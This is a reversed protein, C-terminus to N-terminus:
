SPKPCSATEAPGRERHRGLVPEADQVAVEGRVDDAAHRGARIRACYM